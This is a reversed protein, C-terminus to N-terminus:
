QSEVDGAADLRFRRFSGIAARSDAETLAKDGPAPSIWVGATGCHRPLSSTPGCRLRGCMSGRDLVARPIESVAANIDEDDLGSLRRDPYFQRDSGNRYDFAEDARQPRFLDLYALIADRLGPMM